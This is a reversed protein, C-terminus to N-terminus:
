RDSRRVRRRRRPLTSIVARTATAGTDPEPPVAYRIAQGEPPADRM